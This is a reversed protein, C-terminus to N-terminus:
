GGARQLLLVGAAILGIALLRLWNFPENLVLFGVLLVLATQAGTIVLSSTVQLGRAYAFLGFLDIGGAAMGAGVLLWLGAPTFLVAQGQAKMGLLVMLNVLFATAAVVMAGLAPNISGAALKQFVSYAAASAGTLLAFVLASESM